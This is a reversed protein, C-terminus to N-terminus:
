LDIAMLYLPGVYIRNLICNKLLRITAGQYSFMDVDSLLSEAKFFIISGHLTKMVDPWNDFSSQHSDYSESEM